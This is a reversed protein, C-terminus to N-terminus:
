CFDMGFFFLVFNDSMHVISYVSDFICNGSDYNLVTTKCTAVIWWFEGVLELEFKLFM